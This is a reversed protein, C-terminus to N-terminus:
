SVESRAAKDILSTLLFTEKFEMEVGTESIDLERSRKWEYQLQDLSAIDTGPVYRPKCQHIYLVSTM